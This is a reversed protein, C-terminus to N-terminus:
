VAEEGITHRLARQHRLRQERLRDLFAPPAPIRLRLFRLAKV